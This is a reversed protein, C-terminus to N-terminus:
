SKKKGWEDISKLKKGWKTESTPVGDWFMKCDKLPIWKNCIWHGLSLTHNMIFIMIFFPILISGSITFIYYVLIQDLDYGKELLEDRMTTVFEDNTLYPTTDNLMNVMPMILLFVIFLTFTFPLIMKISLILGLSSWDKRTYNSTISM